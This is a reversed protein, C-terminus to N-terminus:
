RVKIPIKIKKVQNIDEIKLKKYLVTIEIVKLVKRLDKLNKNM